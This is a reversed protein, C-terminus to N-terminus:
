SWRPHDSTTEYGLGESGDVNAAGSTQVNIKEVPQLLAFIFFPGLNSWPRKM